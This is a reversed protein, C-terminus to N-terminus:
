EGWTYGFNYRASFQLRYDDVEFGDSNNERRGWQFEMGTMVNPVPYYLLNGLAYQGRKFANASQGSANDIDVLSYGVSTSWQDSWYHDLFATIGLIPLAVGDFPHNPDGTPEVGIDVTADNMYNEIGEGYVVALRAVDNEHIEPLKINTSVNVGWGVEDGEIDIADVTPDDWKMYRLIGAVEFYGRPRGFRYEASLDPAPFRAQVGQAEIEASYDGLDGSAGPRELAITARTDGKIPMWRVQVNRFFAMGSPGWYEISNPFVDIDMFPSWTQGAGFQGLEGYAHRLRITTQGADVGVGFLEFEWQTYLEGHSTPTYSKVGIRSQRVGAYFRGDEGFQKDFRPLKTPRVVDFWQPDNQKFDYGMDLMAFGYLNLKTQARATASTLLTMGAIALLGVVLRRGIVLSSM